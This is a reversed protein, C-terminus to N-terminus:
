ARDQECLPGLRPRRKNPCASRRRCNPSRAQALDRRLLQKLMHVESADFGELADAEASKLM